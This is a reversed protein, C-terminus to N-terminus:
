LTHALTVYNKSQKDDKCYKTERTILELIFSFLICFFVIFNKYYGQSDYHQAAILADAGDNFANLREDQANLTNVFARHQKLLTEVEDLSEQLHFYILYTLLPSVSFNLSVGLNNFELFAQHSSTAADINDAEKNFM